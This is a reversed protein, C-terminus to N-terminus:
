LKKGKRFLVPRPYSHIVKTSSCWDGIIYSYVVVTDGQKARIFKRPTKM